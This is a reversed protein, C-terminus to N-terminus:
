KNVTGLALLRSLDKDDLWGCKSLIIPCVAIGKKRTLALSTQMEKMCATSSLFNASIFLCIIDAKELNNDITDQFDKGTTIKRDYWPEIVGNNRLPTIHKTFTEIHGEDLHSYCIFLKLPGNQNM